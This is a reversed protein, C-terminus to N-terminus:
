GDLMGSSLDNAAGVTSDGTAMEGIVKATAAGWLVAHEDTCLMVFVPVTMHPFIRVLFFRNMHRISFVLGEALGPRGGESSLAQEFILVVPGLVAEFNGGELGALGDAIRVGFVVIVSLGESVFEIVGNIRIVRM